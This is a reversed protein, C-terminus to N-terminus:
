PLTSPGTELVSIRRSIGIAVLVNRLASLVKPASCRWRISHFSSTTGVGHCASGGGDPAPQPDIPRNRTPSPHHTRRGGRQTQQSLSAPRVRDGRHVPDDARLAHLRHHGLARKSGLLDLDCRGVCADGRRSCVDAVDLSHATKRVSAVLEGQRHAHHETDFSRERRPREPEPSCSM